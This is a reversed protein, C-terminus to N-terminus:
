FVGLDQAAKLDNGFSPMGEQRAPSFSEAAASLDLTGAEPPEFRIREYKRGTVIWIDMGARANAALSQPFVSSGFQFMQSLLDQSGVTLPRPQHDNMRLEGSEWYFGVRHREEGNKWTRYQEPTFGSADFRGISEMSFRLPRMSGSRLFFLLSAAGTTEADLTLRYRDAAIEWKLVGQGIEFGQTGRFLAYRIEGKPPYFVDGEQPEAPPIEGVQPTYPVGTEAEPPLNEEESPLLAPSSLDPLPTPPLRGSASSAFPLSSTEPSLESAREPFRRDAHAPNTLSVRLRMPEPWDREM